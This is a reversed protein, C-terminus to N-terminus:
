SLMLVLPYKQISNHNRFLVSICYFLIGQAAAANEEAIM